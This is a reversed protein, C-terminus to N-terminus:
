VFMHTDSQTTVATAELKVRWSSSGGLYEYGLHRAVPRFDRLAIPDRPAFEQAKESAARKKRCGSGAGDGAQQRRMLHTRLAVVHQAARSSREARVADDGSRGIRQVHELELRRRLLCHEALARRRM